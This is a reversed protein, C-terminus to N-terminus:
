YLPDLFSALLCDLSGSSPGCLSVLNIVVRFEAAIRRSFWDHDVIRVVAYVLRLIHHCARVLIGGVWTELTILVIWQLGLVTHSAHTTFFSTGKNYRGALCLKFHLLDLRESLWHHTSSRDHLDM